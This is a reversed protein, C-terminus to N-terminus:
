NGHLFDDDRNARSNNRFSRRNCELESQCCVSNIYPTCLWVFLDFGPQAQSGTGVAKAIWKVSICALLGFASELSQRAERQTERIQLIIKLCRMFVKTLYPEHPPLCLM